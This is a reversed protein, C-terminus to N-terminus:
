HKLKIMAHSQAGHPNHCSSCTVKGEVIPHHSPKGIQVRVQKHCSICTEYELQRETNVFPSVTPDRRTIAITSGRPPRAHVAHCDNCRVDNRGHRGSEWFALQRNGGHCSMCSQTQEQSPVAGKSFRVPHKNQAPNSIHNPNEGHCASCAKGSGVPSGADGKAGHKTEMIGAQDKHCALCVQPDTQALGSQVPAFLLFILLLSIVVSIAFFRSVMRM